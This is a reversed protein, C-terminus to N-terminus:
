QYLWAINNEIYEVEYSLQKTTAAYPYIIYKRGNKGWRIAIKIKEGNKILKGLTM